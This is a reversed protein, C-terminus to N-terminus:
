KNEWFEELERLDYENSNDEKDISKRREPLEYWEIVEYGWNDFPCSWGTEDWMGVTWLYNTPCQNLCDNENHDCNILMLLEKYSPPTEDITHKQLIMGIEEGPAIFKEKTFIFEAM